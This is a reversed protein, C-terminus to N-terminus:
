PQPAPVPTTTMLLYTEEGNVPPTRRVSNDKGLATTQYRYQRRQRNIVPISLSIPVEEQGALRKVVSYRYNNAADEYDLQLVFHALTEDWLADVLVDMRDEWPENIVLNQGSGTQRPLKINRDGVLFYTVDYWYAKQGPDSLRVRWDFTPKDKSLIFSDEVHFNNAVDEYGIKVQVRPIEDFNLDGVTASVNLFGIFTAPDITLMRDLSTIMETTYHMKQGRISTSPDFYFDLRYQYSLHRREDLACTLEQPQVHGQADPKLEVDDVYRPQGDGRDGYELHLKVESLGISAFPTPCDVMVKLRQFFDDDLNVSIFHESKNLGRLLLGFTGNPTHHQEAAAAEKWSMTFTKLEDQHIYRM